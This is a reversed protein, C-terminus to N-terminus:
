VNEVKEESSLQAKERLLVVEKMFDPGYEGRQIASMIVNYFDVVVNISNLGNRKLEADLLTRVNNLQNEDMEVLYM